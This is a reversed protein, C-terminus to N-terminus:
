KEVSVVTHMPRVLQGNSNRIELYDGSLNMSWSEFWRQGRSVILVRASREYIPLCYNVVVASITYPCRAEGFVQVLQHENVLFETGAPLYLENKAAYVPADHAVSICVVGILILSVVVNAVFIEVVSYKSKNQM